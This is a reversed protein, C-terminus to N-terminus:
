TFRSSKYSVFGANNEIDSVDPLNIKNGTKAEIASETASTVADQMSEKAKNCSFLSLMAITFLLNKM